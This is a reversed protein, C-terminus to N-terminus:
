DLKSDIGNLYIFAFVLFADIAYAAPHIILENLKPTKLNFMKDGLYALTVAFHALGWCYIVVQLLIPTADVSGRWANKADKKLRREFDRGIEAIFRLIKSERKDSM